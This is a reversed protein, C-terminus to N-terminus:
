YTISEVYARTLEPMDSVCTFHRYIRGSPSIRFMVPSVESGLGVNFNETSYLTFNSGFEKSLVYLDRLPINDILLNVHWDPNQDAFTRLTGLLTEICPRCGTASYRAFVNKATPLSKINVKENAANVLYGCSDSLVMGEFLNVASKGSEDDDDSTYLTVIEDIRKNCEKQTLMKGGQYGLLLACLIILLQLILNKM